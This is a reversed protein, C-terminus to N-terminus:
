KNCLLPLRAKFLLKACMDVLLAGTSVFPTAMVGGEFKERVVYCDVETHKTREAVSKLVIEDLFSCM